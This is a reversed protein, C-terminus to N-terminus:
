VHFSCHKTVTNKTVNRSGLQGRARALPLGLPVASGVKVFLMEPNAGWCAAGLQQWAGLMVNDPATGVNNNWESKWEFDLCFSFMGSVQAGQTLLPGAFKEQCSAGGRVLSLSPPSPPLAWVSSWQPSSHRLQLLQAPCLWGPFSPGQGSTLQRFSRLAECQGSSAGGSRDRAEREPRRERGGAGHWASLVVKGVRAARRLPSSLVQPLYKSKKFITILIYM